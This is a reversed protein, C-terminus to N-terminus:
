SYMITIKDAIKVEVNQSQAYQIEVFFRLVLSEVSAGLGVNYM